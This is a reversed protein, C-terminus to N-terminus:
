NIYMKAILLHKLINFNLYYLNFDHSNYYM